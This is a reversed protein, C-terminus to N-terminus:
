EPLHISVRRERNLQMTLARDLSGLPLQKEQRELTVYHLTQGAIWYSGAAQISGDRLAILYIPSANGASGGAASTEQGYEDYSRTVSRVAGGYSASAATPPYDEVQAPAYTVAPRPSYTYYAPASYTDPYDYSYPYYNGYGYYDSPWYSLGYGYGPYGWGYYPWYGGRHGYGGYRYGGGYGYSRGGAYGYSRGGGYGIGGRYSSTVPGGGRVAGYGGGHFGSSM